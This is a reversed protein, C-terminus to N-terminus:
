AHYRASRRGPFQDAPMCHESAQRLAVRGERNVLRVTCRFPDGPMDRWPPAPVPPLGFEVLIGAEALDGVDAGLKRAARRLYDGYTRAIGLAAPTGPIASCALLDIDVRNGCSQMERYLVGFAWYGEIDNYRSIFTGLLGGALHNLQYRTVM